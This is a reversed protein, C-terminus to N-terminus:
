WQLLVKEKEPVIFNKYNSINLAKDISSLLRDDIVDPDEGSDGVDGGDDDGNDNGALINPEAEIIV